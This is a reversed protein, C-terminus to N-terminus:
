NAIERMSLCTIAIETKKRLSEEEKWFQEERKLRAAFLLSM